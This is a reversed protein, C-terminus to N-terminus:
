TSVTPELPTDRADIMGPQDGCHPTLTLEGIIHNGLSPFRDVAHMM